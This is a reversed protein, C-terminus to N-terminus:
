SNFTKLLEQYFQRNTKKLKNKRPHIFIYYENKNLSINGTKTKITIKEKTIKIINGQKYLQGTSKKVFLLRDNLFLTELDEVYEYNTLKKVTKNPLYHLLVKHKDNYIKLLNQLPEISM